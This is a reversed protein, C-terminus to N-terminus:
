GRMSMSSSFPVNKQGRSMLPLAEAIYYTYSVTYISSYATYSVNEGLGIAYYRSSVGHVYRELTISQWTLDLSAPCLSIQDKFRALSVVIM